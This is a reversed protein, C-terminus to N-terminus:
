DASAEREALFTDFLEFLVSLVRAEEDPTLDRGREWDPLAIQRIQTEWVLNRGVPYRKMLWERWGALGPGGYRQAAQDYGIMFATVSNLSVPVIYMSTRKAFGAFYKRESMESMEVM